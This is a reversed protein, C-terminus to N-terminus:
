DVLYVEGSTVTTIGKILAGIFRKERHRQNCTDFKKATYLTDFESPLQECYKILYSELRHREAMTLIEDISRKLM